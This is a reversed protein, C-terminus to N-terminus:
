KIRRRLWLLPLAFLWAFSAGGQREYDEPEENDDICNNATLWADDVTESGSELVVMRPIYSTLPDGNGDLAFIPLGNDGIVLDGESDYQYEPKRVFATGVILGEENISNAEVVKIDRNYSLPKGSGDEIDVKIRTWVGESNKTFGKSECTLLTNLDNFENTNKDFLFGGKARPTEKETTIEISGVVQGQNNIDRPWSSRDSISDNFDNPTVIKLDSTATDVYFFKYRLYGDLYLQYSGVMIGNDDIDYGISKYWDDNMPIAHAQYDGNSDFDWFFADNSTYDKGPRKHDSRGAVVGSANVGLGQAVYITNSNADLEDEIPLKKESIVAGNGDLQWVYPRVQYKIYNNGFEDYPFQQNQICIDTPWDDRDGDICSNIRNQSDQTLESGVYGVVLGTPNVKVAVSYGGINVAETTDDKKYSIYPPILPTETGDISKVFGREEFERYYWFEQDETSGAYPVTQQEATMSGVKVGMDNIDYFYADVSNITEPNDASSEDPPTTGNISDFVPLWPKVADNVIATFTFNNAIIPDNISLVIREEPAIGDEIDIIGDNNDDESVTLKKKGKAVAVSEGNTNVAMGYGSRTERLTGILEATEDQSYVEDLNKIEYVSAAQVGQLASIVGVAVLSLAKNLTFKM